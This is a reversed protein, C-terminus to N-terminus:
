KMLYDKVNKISPYLVSDQSFAPLIARIDDYIKRTKSSVLDQQELIDIAQMITIAQVALVEFANIIVKNTIVAANTGMSVIDQNDNNNPISHIYMSTSLTQNEATTSTAMFQAGQMGFNFGLKGMNVFPPLIDNIKHNLLYNLQREALMTLRTIVLKLKDMELSIYDGHFNGGHFVNQEEISVIPNDNASNIERELVDGVNSITEFVPGLIQPVCRISYYEQVKDKFVEENNDGSYLDEERAKILNSDLLHERMLKAIERQGEHLKAENLTSSFHDNHAKVIENIACSFAVSWDLLKQAYHHNVVGVGTMVSTGNMISLGERIEIRMPQLGEIEFVESTPKIEGKYIVEGEGILTLAVHALQVLDGSAGVSGHAYIVPYIERNILEQMLNIVTPNVGSKGLSLTNLRALVASKIMEPKLVEGIGACHSRILNYQLQIQEETQIRYQAMPGFGTNVGYIVKDKSFHKLFAYSEDIRNYVDDAFTVQENGFVIKKFDDLSLYTNISSM